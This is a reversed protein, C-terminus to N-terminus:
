TNLERLQKITEEAQKAHYKELPEQLASYFNDILKEPTFNEFGEAVLDKALSELDEAMRRPEFNNRGEFFYKEEERNIYLSWTEDSANWGKILELGGRSGLSNPNNWLYSVQKSVRLIYDLAETFAEVEFEVYKSTAQHTLDSKEKEAKGMITRIKTLAM